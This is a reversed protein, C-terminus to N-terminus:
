RPENYRERLREMERQLTDLGRAIGRAADDLIASRAEGAGPCDPLGDRRYRPAVGGQPTLFYACGTEPDRWILPEDLGMSPGHSMALCALCIAAKRVV